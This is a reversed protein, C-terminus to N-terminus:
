GLSPRRVTVRTGPIGSALETIDDPDSTVVVAVEADACVAVAHADALRQSGSGTVHLIHGVQKALREDTPVIRIEQGAHRRALISEVRRTRGAGRCVEALTVAACRAQGGEALVLDLLARLRAGRREVDLVDFAGADLVVVPATM